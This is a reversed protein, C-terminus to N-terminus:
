EDEELKEREKCLDVIMYISIAIVVFYLIAAIMYNLNDLQSSKLDVYCVAACLIFILILVQKLHLVKYLQRRLERDKVKEYTFLFTVSFLLSIIINLVNYITDLFLELQHNRVIDGIQSIVLIAIPIIGICLRIADRKNLWSKM